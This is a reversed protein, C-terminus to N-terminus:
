FYRRVNNTYNEYEKGYYKQLFEEEKLIFFHISVITLVTYAIFFPNPYFLSIGTFYIIISVFFPNRSISFVGTTILEGLNKSNM